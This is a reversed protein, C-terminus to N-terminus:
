KRLIDALLEDVNTEDLGDSIKQLAIHALDNLGYGLAVIAARIAQNANVCELSGPSFEAKTYYAHAWFLQGGGREFPVPKSDFFSVDPMRLNLGPLRANSYHVTNTLSWLVFGQERLCRDIDGFLPQGQYIPNFEVEIELLQVDKLAHGAGRLVDLEGGQADLKMASVPGIGSQKKWTEFSQLTVTETRAPAICALEPLLTSLTEIPPFLSSCAPEVAIHLTADRESEALAVPVYHVHTPSIANLRACEIEDPDFGFVQVLDGLGEWRDGIGWRAGVDVAVIQEVGCQAAADKFLKWDV